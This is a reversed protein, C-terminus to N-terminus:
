NSPSLDGAEAPNEARDRLWAALLDAPFLTMRGIVVRPPGDELDALWKACVGISEAAETLRLALRPLAPAEPIRLAAPVVDRNRVM